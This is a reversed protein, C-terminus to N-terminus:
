FTKRRLIIGDQKNFNVEWIRDCISFLSNLLKQNEGTNIWNSKIKPLEEAMDLMDLKILLFSQDGLARKVPAHDSREFVRILLSTIIELVEHSPPDELEIQDNISKGGIPMARQANQEILALAVLYKSGSM